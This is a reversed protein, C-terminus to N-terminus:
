FVFIGEEGEIGEDVNSWIDDLGFLQQLSPYGDVLNMHSLFYLCGRGLNNTTDDKGVGGVQVVYRFKGDPMNKLFVCQFGYLM